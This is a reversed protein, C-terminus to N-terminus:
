TTAPRHKGGGVQLLVAGFFVCTEQTETDIAAAFIKLIREFAVQRNTLGGARKREIVQINNSALIPYHLTGATSATQSQISTRNGTQSTLPTTCL